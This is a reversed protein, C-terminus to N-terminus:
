CRAILGESPPKDLAIDWPDVAMPAVEITIYAELYKEAHMLRRSEVGDDITKFGPQKSYVRVAVQSWSVTWSRLATLPLMLNMFTMATRNDLNDDQRLPPLRFDGSYSGNIYIHCPVEEGSKPILKFSSKRLFSM